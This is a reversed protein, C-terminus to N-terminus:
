VGECIPDCFFSVISGSIFKYVNADTLALKPKLIFILTIIKFYSEGVKIDQICSEWYKNEDDMTPM